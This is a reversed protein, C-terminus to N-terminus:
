IHIMDLNSNPNNNYIIKSKQLYHKKAICEHLIKVTIFYFLLVNEKYHRGRSFTSIDAFYKFLIIRNQHKKIGLFM